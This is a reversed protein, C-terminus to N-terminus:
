MHFSSRKLLNWILYLRYRIMFRVSLNNKHGGTSVNSSHRRYLILPETLIKYRFYSCGVLFLWNDHTSLRFNSPFPLAVNLINKRFAMCCGLYGFKIINGVLHKFVRRERFYSPTITELDQNVVIADHVVFDCDQLSALCVSVKNNLWVDDQDALFIIDNKCHRLANQFNPTYGHTGKNSILRIREDKFSMIIEKTSDNSGDDSIVIEDYEELQSIVSEIQPRIFNGGNYTAICVSVSERM